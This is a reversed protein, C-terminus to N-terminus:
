TEPFRRPLNVTRVTWYVFANFSVVFADELNGLAHNIVKVDRGDRSLHWNEIRYESYGNIDYVSFQPYTELFPRQRSM